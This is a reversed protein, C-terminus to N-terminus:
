RMCVLPLFCLLLVWVVRGGAWKRRHRCDNGNRSAHLRSWVAAPVRQEM